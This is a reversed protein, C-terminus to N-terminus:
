TAADIVNLFEQAVTAPDYRRALSSPPAFATLEGRLAADFLVDLAEAVGRSDNPDVRIIGGEKALDNVTGTAPSLALIPKRAGIYDCIKSPLFIGAEMEGEVLLCVTANAIYTLSADYDVQGVSVVSAGVGLEVAYRMTVPDEPGVFVLRTRDRARPTVAFFRALGQIMANARRGTAEHMRLKGAHAIVFDREDVTANLSAAVHPIVRAGGQRRSGRLTYDCLRECPFTVMRAKALVRRLWFREVPGQKWALREAPDVMFQSLDFPDNFNAIWPIRLASSVWYGAVHAYWPYSRSVVVDFKKRAHLERAKAVVAGTWGGWLTTQYKLGRRLRVRLPAPAPNPVDVTVVRLSDWRSSRDPRLPPQMGTHCCIVSVDIGHGLLAQAFKGGCFAESDVRPAFIPSIILTNM